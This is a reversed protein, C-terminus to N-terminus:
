SRRHHVETREVVELCDPLEYGNLQLEHLAKAKVQHYAVDLFVGDAILQELAQQWDSCKVQPRTALRLSIGDGRLEEVQQERCWAEAERKLEDVRKQAATKAAKAEDLEDLARKLDASIEAATRM